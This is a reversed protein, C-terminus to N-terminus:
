DPDAVRELGRGASRGAVLWYAIGGVIGAGIVAAVFSYGDGALPGELGMFSLVIVCLAVGAGGIAHFLWDRKGLIESVLIVAMAPVFAYYAVLMALFPATVAVSMTVADAPAEEAFGVAGLLLLNLFAAAALSAVVYGFLIVAFRTLYAFM